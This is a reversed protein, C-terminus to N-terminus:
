TTTEDDRANTSNCRVVLVRYPSAKSVGRHNRRPRRPRRQQGRHHGRLRLAHLRCGGFHHLGRRRRHDHQGQPALFLTFRASATLSPPFFARLLFFSFFLSFDSFLFVYSSVTRITCPNICITDNCGGALRDCACSCYWWVSRLLRKM